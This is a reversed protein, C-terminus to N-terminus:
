SPPREENIENINMTHKSVENSAFVTETQHHSSRKAVYESLYSYDISCWNM